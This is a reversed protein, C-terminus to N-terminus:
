DVRPADSWLEELAYYARTDRSFIHVVVDVFDLVVWQSEATGSQRYCRIDRDKLARRVEDSLAKIHPGSTGTVMVYYDTVGSLKTVDLVTLDMGKKEDLADRAAKALELPEILNM